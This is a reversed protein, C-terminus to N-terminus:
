IGTVSFALRSKLSMLCDIPNAWIYHVVCGNYNAILASTMSISPSWFIDAFNSLQPVWLYPLITIITLSSIEWLGKGAIMSRWFSSNFLSPVGLNELLYTPFKWFSLLSREKFHCQQQRSHLMKVFDWSFFINLLKIILATHKYVRGEQFDPLSKLNIVVTELTIFCLKTSCIDMTHMKRTAHELLTYKHIKTSNETQM